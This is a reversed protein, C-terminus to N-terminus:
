TRYAFDSTERNFVPADKMQEWSIIRSKYKEPISGVVCVAPVSLYLGTLQPTLGEDRWIHSITTM